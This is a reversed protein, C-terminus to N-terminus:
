SVMREPVTRLSDDVRLKALAKSAQSKVTGITIGLTEATEAESLDEYYRLVIVARQRAPLRALARWLADRQDARAMGEDPAAREPLEEAPVEARWRRRWWSIYTTFMVKRVYAEPQDNLRNWAPWAKAMAEQVLDEAKAWDRCLLYATRMLRDSRAALFASYTARDAV